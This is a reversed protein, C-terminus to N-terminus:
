LSNYCKQSSSTGTFLARCWCGVRHHWIGTWCIFKWVYNWILMLGLSLSELSMLVRKHVYWFMLYMWPVKTLGNCRSCTWSFLATLDSVYVQLWLLVKWNEFVFWTFNTYSTWAHLPRVGVQKVNSKCHLDFNLKVSVSWYFQNRKAGLWIMTKM